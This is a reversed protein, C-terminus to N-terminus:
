GPRGPAAAAQVRYPKRDQSEFYTRMMIEALLGMLVSGCGMLFLMAALLPLPTQILSTAGFAKLGLAWALAAFSALISLLGLGGFVYIPKVLYVELFKAVLLDLMVKYVRGM